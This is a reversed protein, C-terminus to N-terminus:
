NENTTTQNFEHIKMRERQKEVEKHLVSEPQPTTLREKLTPVLEAKICIVLEKKTIAKSDSGFLYRLGFVWWPLDKLIPIGNRVTTEDNVFLGGIVTQEGNLMLVQTTAQTKNIITTAADPVYSSREVNINLLIYDVSDEKYIYPTVKMITGTSYFNQIVNGAFDQQKIAIDAGSQLRSERKDRVTMNPSAIIQGVNQSEFFKFIATVDGFFGGVNFGYKASFQGTAIASQTNSSSGGSSSNTTTKTPDIGVIGGLEGKEGSLVAKWNIGREKSSTVDMEFFVASINVERDNVSAYTDATRETTKIEEKKKIVIVDEREEYMYGKYQVLVVLAKDYAMNEIPIGIPEDSQITSVIKKGTHKISVKSLLEVAQNFPITSALTIIEDPAIGTLQRELYKQPLINSCFLIVLAIIIKTKM